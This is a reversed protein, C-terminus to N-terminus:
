RGAKTRKTKPAKAPTAAGSSKSFLRFSLLTVGEPEGTHPNLSLFQTGDGYEKPAAPNLMQLPRKARVVAPGAGGWRPLREEPLPAEVEPPTLPPTTLSTGPAGVVPTQPPPTAAPPPANTTEAATATGLLSLGLWLSRLTKM